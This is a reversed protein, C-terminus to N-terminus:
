GGISAMSERIPVAAAAQHGDKAKSNVAMQVAALLEADTAGQRMLDKLSLGGNAYLCTRLQGDPTIRLRNCTGCFSRTFAPIIGLTGKFDPHEFRRATGSPSPDIEILGPFLGELQSQIVTHDAHNNTARHGNFPMEELFRVAVAHNRALESLAAVEEATTEPLMVANIKLLWGPQLVRDLFSNVKAFEDRRTLAAFRVPDLTDLSLNIARIGLKELTDLHHLGATGNTTIALDLGKFESLGHLLFSINKRLLPEGGTLRVKRIGADHLVGVLRLMEEFTLLHARPQWDLGEAPM